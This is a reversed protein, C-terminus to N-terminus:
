ELSEPLYPDVLEEFLETYFDDLKVECGNVFLTSNTEIGYVVTTEDSYGGHILELLKEGSQSKFVLYLSVDMVGMPERVLSFNEPRIRSLLPKHQQLADNDIEFVDGREDDNEIKDILEQPTFCRDDAIMLNRLYGTMTMGSLDPQELADMFPRLAESLRQEPTKACSSLSAILLTLLIVATIRKM